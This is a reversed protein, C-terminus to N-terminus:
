QRKRNTAKRMNSLSEKEYKKEIHKRIEKFLKRIGEKDWGSDVCIEDISDDIQQWLQKETM